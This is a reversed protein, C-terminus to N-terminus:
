VLFNQVSICRYDRAFDLVTKGGVTSKILLDADKKLLMLVIDPQCHIAAYIIATFGYINIYNPNAGNRLLLEVLAPKKRSIAIILPTGGIDNEVNPNAGKELMLQALEKQWSDEDTSLQDLNILYTLSTYDYKDKKNLEEKSEKKALALSNIKDRSLIAQMLPTFDNRPPQCGSVLLQFIFLTLIVTSKIM